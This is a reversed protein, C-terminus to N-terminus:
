KVKQHDVLNLFYEMSIWSGEEHVGNHILKENVEDSQAHATTFQVNPLYKQGLTFLSVLFWSFILRKRISYKKLESKKM